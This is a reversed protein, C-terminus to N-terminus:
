IPTYDLFGSLFSLSVLAVSGHHFTEKVGVTTQIYSMNTHVLVVLIGSFYLRRFARLEHQMEKFDNLRKV